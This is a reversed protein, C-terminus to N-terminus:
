GWIAQLPTSSPSRSGKGHRGGSARSKFAKPASLWPSDPAAPGRQLQPCSSSATLSPPTIPTPNSSHSHPHIPNQSEIHNKALLGMSNVTLVRSFATISTTSAVPLNLSVSFFFLFFIYIHVYM